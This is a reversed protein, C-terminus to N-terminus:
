YNIAKDNKGRKRIEKMLLQAHPQMSICDLFVCTVNDRSCTLLNIPIGNFKENIQIIWHPPIFSYFWKIKWMKRVLTNHWFSVPKSFLPLLCKKHSKEWSCIMKDNNGSVTLKLSLQLILGRTILSWKLSIENGLQM